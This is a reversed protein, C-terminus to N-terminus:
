RTGGRRIFAGSIEAGRPTWRVPPHGLATRIDDTSCGRFCGFAGTDCRVFLSSNGDGQHAPCRAYAWGRSTEHYGNLASAHTRIDFSFSRAAHHQRTTAPKPTLDLERWDLLRGDIIEFHYPADASAKVPTYYMRGPDKAQQDIMEGSLDSAWNWLERFKSPPIPTRLPIIVRFRDEARPNTDCMRGHSHTTYIAFRLGTTRWPELDRAILADHDYDLVLMSVQTVNEGARKPPNFTAPSFLLGDKRNRIQPRSIRESIQTWTRWASRAQNDRVSEFLSIRFTM